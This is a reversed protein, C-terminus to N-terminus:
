VFRFVCQVSDGEVGVRGSLEFEYATEVVFVAVVVGCVLGDKSVVVVSDGCVMRCLSCVIVRPKFAWKKMEYMVALTM